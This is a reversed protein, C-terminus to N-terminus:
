YARRRSATSSRRTNRIRCAAIAHERLCHGERLLLVSGANLRSFRYHEPDVLETGERAALRFRDTSSSWRSSEPSSTRCRSCCSTSVNRRSSQHLRETVDEHLFLKLEPYARACRPCCVRCSFRRSRRSSASSCRRRAAAPEPRACAGRAVDHGPLLAERSGCHGQRAGHDDRAPENSRRPECGAAGRAGPHRYQVGVSVRLM